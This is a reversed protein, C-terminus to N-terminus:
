KTVDEECVLFPFCFLVLDPSPLHDLHNVCMLLWQGFVSLLHGIQVSWCTALKSTMQGFDAPRLVTHHLALSCPLHEKSTEAGNPFTIGRRIPWLSQLKLLVWRSVSFWFIWWNYVMGFPFWWKEIHYNVLPYICDGDYGMMDWWIMLDGSQHNEWPVLGRNWHSLDAVAWSM